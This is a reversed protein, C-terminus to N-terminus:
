GALGVAHKVKLWEESRDINIKLAKSIQLAIM